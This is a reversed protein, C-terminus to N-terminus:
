GVAIVTREPSCSAPVNRISGASAKVPASHSEGAFRSLIEEANRDRVVADTSAKVQVGVPKNQLRHVFPITRNRGALRGVRRQEGVQGVPYLGDHPVVQAVADRFDGSRARAAARKRGDLYLPSLVLDEM